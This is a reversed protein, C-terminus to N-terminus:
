YVDVNIGSDLTPIFPSHMLLKAAMEIPIKGTFVVKTFIAKTSIM